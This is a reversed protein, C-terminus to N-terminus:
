GPTRIRGFGPPFVWWSEPNFRVARTDFVTVRNARPRAAVSGKGDRDSAVDSEDVRRSYLNLNRGPDHCELPNLGRGDGNMNTSFAASILMDLCQRITASLLSRDIEFESKVVDQYEALTVAAAVV